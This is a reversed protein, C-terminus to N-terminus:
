LPEFALRLITEVLAPFEIGAGRAAKPVLSNSTLGPLTNAELFIPKGDERVRFDIRSYGRCGLARYAARSSSAIAESTPRDFPAPVLYECSGAQYKNRYDYFGDKPRIELLPLSRVGPDEAM